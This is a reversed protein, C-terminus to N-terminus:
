RNISFKPMLAKEVSWGRRLRSDILRRSVNSIRELENLTYEDGMYQIRITTRKNYSQEEVTAWRCNDPSYNGNNDIRDITLDKNYGHALAWDRFVAFDDWEKCVSIGRAGYKNYTNCKPNNCRQRMTKWIAYLRFPKRCHKLHNHNGFPAGGPM